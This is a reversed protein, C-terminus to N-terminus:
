GEARTYGELCLAEYLRQATRRGRTPLTAEVELWGDLTELFPGLKPM